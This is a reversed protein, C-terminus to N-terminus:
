NPGIYAIKDTANQTSWIAGGPGVTIRHQVAGKTPLNYTKATKDPAIRRIIDPTNFQLWINEDADIVAGALKGGKVGSPYEIIEGTSSITGYANGREETFWMLGGPGAFVVIPRANETPLSFLTIEGENTIRGINSGELETFWMNGDHGPAIYIPKAPRNGLEFIDLKNKDVDLRGIVNGTKGTWWIIGDSAVGLGHPGSGAPLKFRSTIKGDIGIQAIEDIYELTVWLRGKADFVIGHPGSNKPMPILKLKKDSWPGHAQVKVLRAQKQQTIWMNGEPGAIIEHTSGMKGPIDLEMIRSVNGEQADAALASFLSIIAASCIIQFLDSKM